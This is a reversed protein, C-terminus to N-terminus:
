RLIEDALHVIEDGTMDDLRGDADSDRGFQRLINRVTKRRYSFIKNITRIQDRTMTNKQRLHIVVSDVRPPPDFNNRGVDSVRRMEFAHNAIISVARRGAVGAMLKDAFEKQVMVVGHSFSRLALWEMIDRSKSYPLNSVFVTFRDTSKLGDGAELVLNKIGSMSATAADVLSKDADISIVRGARACLLPTLIGLGTGLEFVTDDSTIRAESVIGEAVSASRLFHQGLRMRRNM